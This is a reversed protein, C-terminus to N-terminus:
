LVLFNVLLYFIPNIIQEEGEKKEKPKSVSGTEKSMYFICFLRGLLIVSIFPRFIYEQKIPEV